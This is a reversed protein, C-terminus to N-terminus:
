FASIEILRDGDWESTQGFEVDFATGTPPIVNEGPLTM